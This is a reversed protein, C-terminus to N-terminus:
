EPVVEATGGISFGKVIGLKVQEWVDDDIVQVAMVWSGAPVKIEGEGSEEVLGARETRPVSLDVDLIYSEVIRFREDAKYFDRHMYGSTTEGKRYEVMFTHAANQIEDASVTTGHRDRIGPRLVPGKVIRKEDLVKLISCRFTFDSM